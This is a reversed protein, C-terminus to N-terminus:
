SFRIRSPLVPVQVSCTINKLTAEDPFQFPPIKRLFETVEEILM